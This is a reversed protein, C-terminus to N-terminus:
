LSDRKTRTLVFEFKQLPAGPIASFARVRMEDKGKLAFYVRHSAGNAFALDAQRDPAVKATGTSVDPLVAAGLVATGKLSAEPALSASLVLDYGGRGKGSTMVLKDTVRDRFQLEKSELTLEVKGMWATKVTLLLAYRGLGGILSGEWKGDIDRLDSKVGDGKTVVAAGPLSPSPKTVSSCEVPSFADGSLRPAGGNSCRPAAFLPAALFACLAALLLKNM